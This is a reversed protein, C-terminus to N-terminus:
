IRIVSLELPLFSVRSEPSEADWISKVLLYYIPVGLLFAIGIALLFEKIIQFSINSMGGKSEIREIVYIKDSDNGQCFVLFAMLKPPSKWFRSIRKGSHDM